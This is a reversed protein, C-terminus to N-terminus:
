IVGYYSKKILKQKSIKEITKIMDKITKWYNKNYHGGNEIKLIMEESIKYIGREDKECWATIFFWGNIANEVHCTLGKTFYLNDIKRM